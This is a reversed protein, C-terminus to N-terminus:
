KIAAASNNTSNTYYYTQNEISAVAEFSMLLFPFDETQVSSDTGGGYGRSPLHTLQRLDKNGLRRWDMMMVVLGELDEMKSVVENEKKPGCPMHSNMQYRADVVTSKERDGALESLFLSSM